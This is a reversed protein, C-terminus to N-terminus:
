GDEQPEKRNIWNRYYFTTNKSCFETLVAKSYGRNIEILFNSEWFM